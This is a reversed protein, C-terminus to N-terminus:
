LKKKELLKEHLRVLIHFQYVHIFYMMQIFFYLNLYAVRKSTFAIYTGLNEPIKNRIRYINLFNDYFSINRPFANPIRLSTSVGGGGRLLIVAHIDDCQFIKLEFQKHYKWM